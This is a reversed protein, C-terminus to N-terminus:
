AQIWNKFILTVITGSSISKIEMAASQEKLTKNLLAIRERTLRLGHRDHHIVMTDFGKGNDAIMIILDNEHRNITISLRGAEKLAAIGHKVANEVLPQLLLSPIEVANLELYGTTKIEYNFNFRLQELRIYNELIKLDVALPIMESNHNQLTDRLLSSFETLYQNALDIENKNILSQISSLANFVFHPNLQARISKLEVALKEKRSKERALRRRGVYYIAFFAAAFGSIALGTVAATKTQYWAAPVYFTYKSVNGSSNKYRVLLTYESNSQLRPVLILHGTPRWSTDDYAHGTLKYELSSDPYNRPRAFYFALKSSAPLRQDNIEIGKDPQKNYLLYTANNSHAIAQQQIFLDPTTKVSSDNVLSALVPHFSIVVRKIHVTLLRANNAKERIELTISDNLGLRYNALEYLTKLNGKDGNQYIATDKVFPCAMIDRWNYIVTNGQLVRAQLNNLRYAKKAHESNDQVASNFSFSGHWVDGSDAQFAYIFLQPGTISYHRDSVSGPSSQDPKIKGEEKIFDNSVFLYTKGFIFLESQEGSKGFQAQCVKYSCFSVLLLFIIKKM